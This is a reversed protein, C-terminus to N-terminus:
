RYCYRRGREVVGLVVDEVDNEVDLVVDELDLVEDLVEVELVRGDIDSADEEMDLVSSTTM